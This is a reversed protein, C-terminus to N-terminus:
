SKVQVRLSVSETMATRTQLGSREGTPILRRSMAGSWGRFRVGYIEVSGFAPNVGVGAGGRQVMSNQLSIRSNGARRVRPPKPWAPNDKQITKVRARATKVAM